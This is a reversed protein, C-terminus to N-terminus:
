IGIRLRRALKELFELVEYLRNAFIELLGIKRKVIDLESPMDVLAVCRLPIANLHRLKSRLTLYRIGPHYPSHVQLEVISDMDAPLVQFAQRPAHGVQNAM